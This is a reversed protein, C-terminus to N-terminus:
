VVVQPSVPLKPGNLEAVLSPSPRFGVSVKPGHLDVERTRPNLM